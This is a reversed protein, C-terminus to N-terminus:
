GRVSYQSSLENNSGVIVKILGEIGGTPSPINIANKPNLVVLGAERRQRQDTVVVSDLAAIGPEMIVRVFESEGSNLIFNRQETKYGAFTFILAIAKEIPVTITFTGSDSSQVGSQKGLLIVSVGALPMENADVIKGSIFAQKKQSAASQWLFCLTILFLIPLFRMITQEVVNNTTCILYYFLFFPM